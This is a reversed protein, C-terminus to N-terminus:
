FSPDQRYVARGVFFRSGDGKWGGIGKRTTWRITREPASPNGTYEIVADDSQFSGRVVRCDLRKITATKGSASLGTIIWPYADSGVQQTVGTGITPVQFASMDRM